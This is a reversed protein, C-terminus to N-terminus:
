KWPIDDLITNRENLMMALGPLPGKLPHWWYGGIPGTLLGDIATFPDRLESMWRQAFIRRQTRSRYRLATIADAWELLLEAGMEVALAKTRRPVKPRKPEMKKVVDAITLYM